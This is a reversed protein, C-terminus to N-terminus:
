PLTSQLSPQIGCPCVHQMPASIYQLAASYQQERSSPVGAHQVESLVAADLEACSWVDTSSVLVVLLALVVGVVCAPAGADDCPKTPVVLVVPGVALEEAMRAKLEASLCKCRDVQHSNVITNVMPLHHFCRCYRSLIAHPGSYPMLNYVVALM